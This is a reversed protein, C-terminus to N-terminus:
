GEDSKGTPEKERQMPYPVYEDKFIYHNEHRLPTSTSNFLLL